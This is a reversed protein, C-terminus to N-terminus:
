PWPCPLHGVLHTKGTGPRGYMYVGTHYRRAVGRVFDRVVGEKSRLEALLTARNNLIYHLALSEAGGLPADQNPETM